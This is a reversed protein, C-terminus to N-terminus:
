RWPATTQASVQHTKRYKTFIEAIRPDPELGYASLGAAVMRWGGNPMIARKLPADTQLGVILEHVDGIYGPKHATIGAPTHVDVDYVGREREVRFMSELHEWLAVTRSTPGCLFSGDGLYPTYNAQIFGRVDISERWGEGAFGAWPSEERREECELDDEDGPDLDRAREQTIATM